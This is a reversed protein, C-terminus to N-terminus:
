AVNVNRLERLDIQLNHKRAAWAIVAQTGPRSCRVGAGPKSFFVLTAVSHGEEQAMLVKLIDKEFESLPNHLSLAVEVITAENPFFFDVALRNDGCIKRESYDAGLAQTARLRLEKMFASSAKDGEGPGKTLFFGPTEDALAQALGFLVEACTKPLIPM